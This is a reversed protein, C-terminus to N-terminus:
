PRSSNLSDTKGVGVVMLLGDANAALFNADSHGQLHASDYIVFEYMDNLQEMLFQMQHGALVKSAQSTIQGATLVSLNEHYPSRQILQHPDLNQHLIDSLGEFNPLEFQTHLKPFNLNTDVLLVRQGM